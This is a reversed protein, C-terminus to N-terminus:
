RGLVGRLCPEDVSGEEGDAETCVFLVPGRVPLDFRAPDTCWPNPPLANADRLAVAFVGLEDVAGALTVPGGLVAHADRQRATVRTATGDPQVLLCNM